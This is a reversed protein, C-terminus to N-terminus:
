DIDIEFHFQLRQSSSLRTGDVEIKVVMTEELLATTIPGVYVLARQGSVVRGPLLRGQTTWSARVVIVPQEPLVMFIRGNRNVWPSLNLRLNVTTSGELTNDGGRAPAVQRWRMPATSEQPFTGAEDIRYTAGFTSGSAIACFLLVACHRKM